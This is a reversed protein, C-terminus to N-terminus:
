RVEDIEDNGKEEQKREIGFLVAVGHHIRWRLLLPRLPSGTTAPTSSRIPPPSPTSSARAPEKLRLQRLLRMFVLITEPATTEGTKRSVRRRKCVHLYKSLHHQRADLFM